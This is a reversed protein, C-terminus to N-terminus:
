PPFLRSGVSSGAPGQAVKQGKSRALRSAHPKPLRLVASLPAHDSFEQEFGAPWVGVARRPRAPPHPHAQGHFHPTCRHIRIHGPHTSQKCKHTGVVTNIPLTASPGLVNSWKTSKIVSDAVRFGFGKFIKRTIRGKTPCFEGM